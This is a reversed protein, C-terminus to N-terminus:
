GRSDPETWRLALLATDDTSGTPVLRDVLRDLVTELSTGAPVDVTRLRELGDLISEGPREVLGDTYAVVVTGPPVTVTVEEPAPRGIGIPTTAEVPVYDAGSGTILLPPLHGASAVTMIRTDLDIVGVLVTAFTEDDLEQLRGLRELLAAPEGADAVYARTAFRLAAMTTAARLGHGSVDGVVFTCARPGTQIVDYWDGGVDLGTTGPIYRAGLEMGEVAPLAPLLAHQFDSAISRQELYLRENEAALKEAHTRRRQVYEALVTSAGAFVVGVSLVIWPLASSLGGALNTTPTGVVTIWTDGFALTSSAKLGRIPTPVSSEILQAPSAVPGLYLAFNLDSFASNRPLTVRKSNPLSSEAYVILNRDGVPMDAYGIREGHPGALLGTVHLRSSPSTSSLFGAARGDAVLNPPSGVLAEMSVTSGSRRWLSVSAFRRPATPSAMFRQFAAPSGTAEAVHLGDNMETQIEPEAAALVTAAQRVQLRLLRADSGHNVLQALVAMVFTGILIVLGIAVTVPRLGAKRRATRTM